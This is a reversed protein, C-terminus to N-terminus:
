ANSTLRKISLLVSFLEEMMEKNPLHGSKEIVRCHLNRNGASECLEKITKTSAIIDTEGQLIYYPVRVNKLKESLDIRLIENWLSTNDKYGNIIMAKFDKFKYDPSQFLGLIIKWIETNKSKKNNYANTKKRLLNSILQLDKSKINNINTDKIKNITKESVGNEKLVAYVEENYFINKVIQGTALVGDITESKKETSLLSLISGWSMSFIFLKNNPFEKKVSDILDCTMQIFHNITFNNDIKYNNIGCGLQDWYVMIFNDTFEPFIGRCGVCLPIPMGPGGHLTILIPLNDYKGEILVKQSFGGLNFELIKSIQNNKIVARRNKNM